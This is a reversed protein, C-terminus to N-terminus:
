KLNKIKQANLNLVNQINILDYNFQTAKLYLNDLNTKQKIWQELEKSKSAHEQLYTDISKLTSYVDIQNNDLLKAKKAQANNLTSKSLALVEKYKKLVNQIFNDLTYLPLWKVYFKLWLTVKYAENSQDTGRILEIFSRTTSQSADRKTSSTEIYKSASFDSIDVIKNEYINYTGMTWYQWKISKWALVNDSYFNIKNENISSIVWVNQVFYLFDVIDSKKWELELSLPIYFIQSSTNDIKKAKKDSWVSEEDVSVVDSIWIKSKTEINFSKLLTEVYNVFQLDSMNWDAVVWKAYSPLVKEIKQSRAIIDPNLKLKDIELQKKNLFTLYDPSNKNSLNKDYFEKWMKNLVLMADKENTLVTKLTEYDLWSKEITEYKQIAQTLTEKNQNYIDWKWSIYSFYIIIIVVFIVWNLVLSNQLTNIKIKNDKIEM